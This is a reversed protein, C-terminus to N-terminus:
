PFLVIERGAAQSAALRLEHLAYFIAVAEVSCPPLGPNQDTMLFTNTRAGRGFWTARVAMTGPGPTDFSCDRLTGVRAESLAARLNGLEDTPATARWISGRDPAALSASLFLGNTCVLEATSQFPVPELLNAGQLVKILPRSGLPCGLPQAALEAAVLLSLVALLGSSRSLPKM